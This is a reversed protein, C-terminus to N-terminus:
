AAAATKEEVHDWMFGNWRVTKRNYTQGDFIDKSVLYQNAALETLEQWHQEVAEQPTRGNGYSGRLVCGGHEKISTGQDVYWDGPKRMVLKCESLANLAQLKQEWDM